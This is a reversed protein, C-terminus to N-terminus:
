DLQEPATLEVLASFRIMSAVTFSTQEWRWARDQELHSCLWLSSSIHECRDSVGRIWLALVHVSQFITILQPNTFMRISLGCNFQIQGSETGEIHGSCNPGTITIPLLMHYTHFILESNYLRRLDNFYIGSTLQVRANLLDHVVPLQHSPLSSLSFLIGTMEIVTTRWKSWLVEPWKARRNPKLSKLLVLTFVM